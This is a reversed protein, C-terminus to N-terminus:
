VCLPALNYVSSVDIVHVPWLTCFCLKEIDAIRTVVDRFAYVSKVSVHLLCLEAGAHVDHDDTVCLTCVVSDTTHVNRTVCYGYVARTHGNSPM